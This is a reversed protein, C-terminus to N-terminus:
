DELGYVNAIHVRMRRVKEIGVKDGWAACDVYFTIVNILSVIIVSM